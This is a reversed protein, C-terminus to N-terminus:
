RITRSPPARGLYACPERGPHAPTGLPEVANATAALCRRLRKLGLEDFGSQIIGLLDDAGKEVEIGCEPPTLRRGL